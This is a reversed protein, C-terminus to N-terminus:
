FAHEQRGLTILPVGAECDIIDSGFVRLSVLWWRVMWQIGRTPMEGPDFDMHVGRVMSLFLHHGHPPVM